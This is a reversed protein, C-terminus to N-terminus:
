VAMLGHLLACVSSVLIGTRIGINGGELILGRFVSVKELNRHVQRQM